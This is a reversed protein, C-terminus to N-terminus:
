GGATEEGPGTPTGTPHDGSATERDPRVIVVPCRARRACEASVSGVTFGEIPRLTRSGVVLLDAGQAARLLAEAAPPDCLTTLVKIDPALGRALRVRTELLDEEARELDDYADLFVRRAFEAHVVELDADRLSAEAAAWRLAADAGASGDVGIVIRGSM